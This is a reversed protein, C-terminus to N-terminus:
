DTPCKFDSTNVAKDSEESSFSPEVEIAALLLTAEKRANEAVTAVEAMEGEDSLAIMEKLEDSLSLLERARKGMEKLNGARIISNLLLTKTRVIDSKKQVEEVSIAM